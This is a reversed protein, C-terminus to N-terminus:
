PKPIPYLNTIKWETPITSSTYCLHAFKRLIVHMEKHAKKLFRYRIESRGPALTPIQVPCTRPRFLRSCDWVKSLFTYQGQVDPCHGQVDLDSGNQQSM